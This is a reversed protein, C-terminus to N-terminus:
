GTNRDGFISQLIKDNHDLLSIGLNDPVLDDSGWKSQFAPGKPGSNKWFDEKKKGWYGPYLLWEPNHKTSYENVSHHVLKLHNFTEIKMGGERCYDDPFPIFKPAINRKYRKAEPYSAHSNISLYVVPHSGEFSLRDPKYWQGKNAHAAYYVSDIKFDVYNMSITIHEWDGEHDGVGMMPGNFPFFYWYQIKCHEEFTSLHVYCEFSKPDGKITSDYSELNIALVSKQPCNDM